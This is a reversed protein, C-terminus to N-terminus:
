DAIMAFYPTSEWDGIKPLVLAALKCMPITIEVPSMAQQCFLVKVAHSHLEVCEIADMVSPAELLLIQLQLAHYYSQVAFRQRSNFINLSEFNKILTKLSPAEELQRKVAKLLRLNPIQVSSRGAQAKTSAVLVPELYSFHGWLTDAAALELEPWEVTYLCKYYEMRTEFSTLTVEYEWNEGALYKELVQTTVVWENVHDLLLPMILNSAHYQEHSDILHKYIRRCGKAHVTLVM